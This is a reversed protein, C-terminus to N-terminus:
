SMEMVEGGAGGGRPEGFVEEPPFDGELVEAVGRWSCGMGGGKEETRKSERLRM